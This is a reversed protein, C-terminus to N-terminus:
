RCPGLSLRKAVVFIPSKTKRKNLQQLIKMVLIYCMSHSSSERSHIGAATHCYGPWLDVPLEATNEM